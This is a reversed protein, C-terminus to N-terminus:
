YLPDYPLFSFFCIGITLSYETLSYVHCLQIYLGRANHCTLYELM